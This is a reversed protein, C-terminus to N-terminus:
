FGSSTFNLSSKEGLKDAELLSGIYCAPPAHSRERKGVQVEIRGGAWAEGFAADSERPGISPFFQSSPTLLTNNSHYQSLAGPVPLPKFSVQYSQNTYQEIPDKSFIMGGVEWCVCVNVGHGLDM